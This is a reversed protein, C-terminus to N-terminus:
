DASWVPEAPGPDGVFELDSVYTLQRIPPTPPAQVDSPPARSALARHTLIKDMVDRQGPNIFSVIKLRHGCRPCILPDVRWM